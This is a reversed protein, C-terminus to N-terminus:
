AATGAGRAGMVLACIHMATPVLPILSFGPTLDFVGAIVPFITLWSKGVHSGRLWTLLCLVGLSGLHLFFLFQFHGAQPANMGAATTQLLASNSGGYPLAYTTIMFIFYLVVFLVPNALVKRLGNM